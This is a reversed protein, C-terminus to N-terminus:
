GRRVSRAPHTRSQAVDTRDSSLRPAAGCSRGQRWGVRQHARRQRSHDAAANGDYLVYTLSHTFTHLHSPHLTFPLLELIKEAKRRIVCSLSLTETKVGECM